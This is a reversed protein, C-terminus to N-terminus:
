EPYVDGWDFALDQSLQSSIETTAAV